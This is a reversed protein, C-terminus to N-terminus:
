KEEFILDIIKKNNNRDFKKYKKAIDQSLVVSTPSDLMELNFDKQLSIIYGSNLKKFSLSNLKRNESEKLKNNLFKILNKFFLRKFKIRSNDLNDKSHVNEKNNIEGKKKRGLKVKSKNKKKQLMEFNNGNFIIAINKNVEIANSENKPKTCFHNVDIMEWSM